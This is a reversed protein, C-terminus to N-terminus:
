STNWLPKAQQMVWPRSTLTSSVLGQKYKTPKFFYPKSSGGAYKYIPQRYIHGVNSATSTWYPPKLLRYMIQSYRCIQECIDNRYKVFIHQPTAVMLTVFYCYCCVLNRGTLRAPYSSLKSSLISLFHFLEYSSISLYIPLNLRLCTIPWTVTWLIESPSLHLQWLYLCFHYVYGELSTMINNVVRLIIPRPHHDLWMIIICMM